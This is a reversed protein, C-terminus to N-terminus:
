PKEVIGPTVSSSKEMRKRVVMLVAREVCTLFDYDRTYSLSYAPNNTKTFEGFIKIKSSVDALDIKQMQFSNKILETTTSSKSLLKISLSLQGKESKPPTLLFISAVPIGIVNGPHDCSLDLRKKSSYHSVSRVNKSFEEFHELSDELLRSGCYSPIAMIKGNRIQLMLCDDTLITKGLRHFHTALTSKGWGSEGLIVICEEGCRVASAHLVM